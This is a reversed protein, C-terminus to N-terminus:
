GAPEIDERTRGAWQLLLVATAILVGGSLMTLSFIEGLLVVGLMATFFPEVTSIISTRVPGLVRLGALLAVFALVTGVLSLLIVFGWERPTEPLELSGTLTGAILFSLMVGCILYFTAPLSSIGRQVTHLAPLYIAYLVATGLALMVGTANLPGSFPTGVMVTIGAMAISLAVLRLLTLEEKGTVAAILVVWAPYTYFLFGLPGVPLYDLARLSLYTILAQGCGGVLMLRVAQRRTVASRLIPGGALLILAAAALSYRWVMAPLLPLGARTVFLTLTTLSGFCCSSLVIMGTAKATAVSASSM